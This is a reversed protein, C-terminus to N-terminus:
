GTVLANPNTSLSSVTATGDAAYSSQLEWVAATLTGLSSDFLSYTLEDQVDATEAGSGFMVVADNISFYRDQVIVAVSAEHALALIAAALITTRAFRRAKTAYFLPKLKQMPQNDGSSFPPRYYM